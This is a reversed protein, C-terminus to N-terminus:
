IKCIVNIETVGKKVFTGNVEPEVVEKAQYIIVSYRKREIQKHGTETGPTNRQNHPAM